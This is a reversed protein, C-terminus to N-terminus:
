HEDNTKEGEAFKGEIASIMHRPALLKKPREGIQKRMANERDHIRVAQETLQEAIYELHMKLMLVANKSFRRERPAKAHMLKTVSRKSLTM